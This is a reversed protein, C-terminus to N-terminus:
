GESYVPITADAEEVAPNFFGGDHPVIDVEM